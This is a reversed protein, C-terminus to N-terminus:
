ESGELTALGVAALTTLYDFSGGLRAIHEAVLSAYTIDAEYDVTLRATGRLDPVMLQQRVFEPQRTMEITVHELNETTPYLRRSRQLAESTFVEVDMGLPIPTTGICVYDVGSSELLDFGKAYLAPDKFPDDATVRAVLCEGFPEAAHIFRSQVDESSGRVIDITTGYRDAVHDVLTDDAERDTTALIVRDAGEIALTRDLVTSVLSQSGILALGKGSRRQSELRAQVIVIRQASEFAM